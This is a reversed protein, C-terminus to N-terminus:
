WEYTFTVTAEDCMAEVMECVNLEGIRILEVILDNGTKGQDYLSEVIKAFVDDNDSHIEIATDLLELLNYTQYREIHGILYDVQLGSTLNDWGHFVWDNHAASGFEQLLLLANYRVELSVQKNKVLSTLEAAVANHAKLVDKALNFINNM